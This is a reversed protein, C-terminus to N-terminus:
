LIGICDHKPLSLNAQGIVVAQIIYWYVVFPLHVEQDRISIPNSWINSRVINIFEIYNVFTSLHFSSDM